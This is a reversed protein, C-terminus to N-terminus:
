YNPKDSLKIYFNVSNLKSLKDFGKQKIKHKSYLRFSKYFSSVRTQFFFDDFVQVRAKLIYARTFVSNFMEIIYKM